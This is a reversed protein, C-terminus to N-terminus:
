RAQAQSHELVIAQLSDLAEVVREVLDDTQALATRASQLADAQSQVTQELAHLQIAANEAFNSAQDRVSELTKEVRAARETAGQLLLELQSIREAPGSEELSSLRLHLKAVADEARTASETAAQLKADTSCRYAQLAQLSASVAQQFEAIKKEQADIRPAVQTAFIEDTQARVLHAVDQRPSPAEARRTSATLLRLEMQLRQVRQWRAAPDKAMCNSLLMELGRGDAVPPQSHLIAFSLAERSIGDSPAHGTLMEYLIAGFSYIDSRVDAARGHFVEPAAYPSLDRSASEAPLLEIGSGTTVVSSPTLAGHVRGADHIKRLADAFATALHLAEAVPLRGEELRESLTQTDTPTM